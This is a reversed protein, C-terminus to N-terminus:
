VGGILRVHDVDAALLGGAALGHGLGDYPQGFGHQHMEAVAVDGAFFAGDELGGDDFQPQRDKAVDFKDGGGDEVDANVDHHYPEDQVDQTWATQDAASPAGPAATSRPFDGCKGLAPYPGRPM